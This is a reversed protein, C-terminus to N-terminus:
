EGGEVPLGAARWAQWSGPINAVKAFGNRALVSAAISARYGSGCYTAITRTRDLEGLNEELHPLYIHRAGPVRGKAAEGDSRVDLVVVDPEQRRRDLERVTWEEVRRLPMAANQWRTMGGILYGAINDYGLRFLQAAVIPVDRESEVVLLIRREPGIMWGVWTPFEPQLGINIAGPVHGGGFALMSRADIVVTGDERAMDQFADPAIPPMVPVDGKVPAGQANVKKLWAYHHPPEPMDDLLWAAFDAENRSQLAPSFLRENGITSHRRDGIAK